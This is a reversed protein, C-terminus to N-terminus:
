PELEVVARAVADARAGRQAYHAVTANDPVVPDAPPDLRELDYDAGVARATLLAAGASAAQGSRRRVAPLGTVATLVQAWPTTTADAGTLALSTAPVAGGPGATAARLCRLVEFAVSEVV